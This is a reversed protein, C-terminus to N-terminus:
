PTIHRPNFFACQHFHEMLKVPRLFLLPLLRLPFSRFAPDSMGAKKIKKEIYFM